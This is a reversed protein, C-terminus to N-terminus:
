RCYNVGREMGEIRFIKDGGILERLRGPNVHNYFVPRIFFSNVSDGLIYKRLGPDGMIVPTIQLSKYLRIYTNIGVSDPGLRRFMDLFYVLTSEEEHPFGALFDVVIKLGEAKAMFVIKEIDAYYLSCKRWSDVTLTILSVGTEKMLKFLRRNYNAPKLYLAWDIKVGSRKLATCFETCYDLDENFEPDCLHFRSFGADVLDRIELIVDSIAKFSVYSNAELCYVCSSGCGKHTEFGAIGGHSFYAGYDIVQRRRPCAIDYRYKRRWIKAPEGGGSFEELLDNVVDDAPGVVAYDADLYDLVGEPDTMLGTGGIVVKLGFESKIRGILNRIEDLFFENTEYLVTDINRVTVGAIEPGFSLVAGELDRYPDPSFCLDLVRVVHGGEELRAALHEIGIPPVPPFRYMNPNILLVKMCKHYVM